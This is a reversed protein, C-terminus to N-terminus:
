TRKFLYEANYKPFFVKHIKCADDYYFGKKTVGNVIDSVTQYRCELLEGMQAFTVKESKMAELLNHYM